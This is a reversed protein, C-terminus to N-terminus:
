LLDWLISLIFRDLFRAGLQILGTGAYPGPEIRTRGKHQTGPTHM